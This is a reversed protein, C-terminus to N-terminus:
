FTGFFVETIDEPFPSLPSVNSYSWAETVSYSCWVSCTLAETSVHTSCVGHFEALFQMSLIYEYSAAKRYLITWHRSLFVVCAALYYVPKM